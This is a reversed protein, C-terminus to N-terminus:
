RMGQGDHGDHEKKSASGAGIRGGEWAVTQVGLGQAPAPCDDGTRRARPADEAIGRSERGFAKENQADIVQVM